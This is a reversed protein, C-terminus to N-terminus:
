SGGGSSDKVPSGKNYIGDHRSIFLTGERFFKHKRHRDYDEDDLVGAGGNKKFKRLLESEGKPALTFFEKDQESSYRDDSVGKTFVVRHMREKYIQKEYM